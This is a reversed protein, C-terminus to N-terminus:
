LLVSEFALMENSTILKATDFLWANKGTKPDTYAGELYAGVRESTHVPQVEEPRVFLVGQIDDVVVGTVVEEAHLVLLRPIVSGIGFLGSELSENLLLRSTDSYPMGLFLRLSVVSVILGRLSFIGELWQPTNPVPAVTTADFRLVEQLTDLRLGYQRGNLLVLLYQITGETDSAIEPTLTSTPLFDSSM